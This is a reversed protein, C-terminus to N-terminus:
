HLPLPTGGSRVEWRWPYSPATDGVRWDVPSFGPGICRSQGVDPCTQFGAGCRMATPIGTRNMTEILMWIKSSERGERQLVGGLGEIGSGFTGIRGAQARQFHCIALCRGGGYGSLPHVVPLNGIGPTSTENPPTGFVVEADGPVDAGTIRCGSDRGLDSLM